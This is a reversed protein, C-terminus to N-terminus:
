ISSRDLELTVFVTGKRRSGAQASFMCRRLPVVQRKLQGRESSTLVKSRTNDGDDIEDQEEDIIGSEGGGIVGNVGGCHDASNMRHLEIKDKSLTVDFVAKNLEQLVAEARDWASHDEILNSPNQVGLEKKAKGVGEQIRLLIRYLKYVGFEDFHVDEAIIHNLLANVVTNFAIATVKVVVQQSDTTQNTTEIDLMNTHLFSKYVPEVIQSLLFTAIELESQASKSNPGDLSHLSCLSILGLARNILGTRRRRLVLFPDLNLAFYQKLYQSTSEYVHHRLFNQLRQLLMPIVKENLKCLYAAAFMSTHEKRRWNDLINRTMAHIEKMTNWLACAQMNRTSLGCLDTKEKTNWLHNLRENLKRVTTRFLLIAYDPNMCLSSLADFKYSRLLNHFPTNTPEVKAAPLFRNITHITKHIQSNQSADSNETGISNNEKRLLWKM